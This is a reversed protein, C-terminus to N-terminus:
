KTSIGSVIKTHQVTALIGVIGFQCSVAEM